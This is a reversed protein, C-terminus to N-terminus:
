PNEKLYKPERKFIQTHSVTPEIGTDYVFDSQGATLRCYLSQPYRFCLFIFLFIFLKKKLPQGSVAGGKMSQKIQKEM